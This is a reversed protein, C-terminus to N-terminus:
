ATVAQELSRLISSPDNVIGLKQIEERIAPLRERLATALAAHQRGQVSKLHNVVGEYIIELDAACANQESEVYEANAITARHHDMSKKALVATTSVVVGLAGVGLAAKSSPDINTWDGNLITFLKETKPINVDISHQYAYWADTIAAVSVAIAAVAATSTALTGVGSLFASGYGAAQYVIGFRCKNAASFRERIAFPVAIERIEEIPWGAIIQANIKECSKKPYLNCAQHKVFRIRDKFKQLIGEVEHKGLDLQASLKEIAPLRQELRDAMKKLELRSEITEIKKNREYTESLKKACDDYVPSLQNIIQKHCEKAELENTDWTKEDSKVSSKAARNASDRVTVAFLAKLYEGPKVGLENSVWGSIGIAAALPVGYKTKTAVEYIGYVSLGLAGLTATGAAVYIVGSKAWSKLGDFYGPRLDKTRQFCELAVRTAVQDKGGRPDVLLLKSLNEEAEHSAPFQDGIKSPFSLSM